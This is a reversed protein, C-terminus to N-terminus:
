RRPPFARAAVRELGAWAWACGSRSAAGKVQQAGGGESRARLPMRRMRHPHRPGLRVQKLYTPNSLFTETGRTIYNDVPVLIHEFYDVAWEHFCQHIQPWLSWVRESIQACAGAATV